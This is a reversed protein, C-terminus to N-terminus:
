RENLGGFLFGYLGVPSTTAADSRGGYILVAKQAIGLRGTGSVVDDLIACAM